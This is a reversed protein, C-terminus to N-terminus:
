CHQVDAYLGKTDRRFSLYQKLLTLGSSHSQHGTLPKRMGTLRPHIHWNCLSSVEEPGRAGLQLGPHVTIYASVTILLSEQM